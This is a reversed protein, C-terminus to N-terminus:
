SYTGTIFPILPAETSDPELLRGRAGGLSPHITASKNILEDNM